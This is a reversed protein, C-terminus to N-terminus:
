LETSECTVKNKGSQSGLKRYLATAGRSQIELAYTENSSWQWDLNRSRAVIDSKVQEDLGKKTKNETEAGCNNQETRANSERMVGRGAITIVKQAELTASASTVRM